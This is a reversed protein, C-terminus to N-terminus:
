PIYWTGTPVWGTGYARVTTAQVLEFKSGAFAPMFTVAVPILIQDGMVNVNGGSAISCQGNSVSGPGGPTLTGQIGTGADDYLFILNASKGYGFYCSNAGTLASSASFLGLATELNNVGAPDTYALTFVQNDASGNEPSITAQFSIGFLVDAHNATTSGAVIVADARGDDNFEGAVVYDADGPTRVYRTPRQFTGDGKGYYVGYTGVGGDGGNSVILDLIGDGNFDSVAVTNPNKGTPYHMASKFTGDGNGLLINLHQVSAENVVALDAVGDGNFDAAVVSYPGNGVPYSVEAQFTGDGKGLLVGVDSTAMQTVALDIIGDGNFDGAALAFPESATAISIAPQFSGNGSGLLISVNSGTENAVALDPRGDGNFDAVVIGSLGSGAVYNVATQFTGDGNGLMVEVMGNQTTLALDAKGDLNFDGVAVTAPTSASPINTPGSFKSNGTNLFISIGTYTAVVFDAKGDGNFDGVAASGASAPLAYAVPGSLALAPAASVTTTVTPSSSRGVMISGLYEAHLSSTGAPLLNTTLTAQGGALVASGVITSGAFFTVKGTAGSPSVSAALNVPQGLISQAPSISMVTSSPLPGALLLPGNLSASLLIVTLSTALTRM